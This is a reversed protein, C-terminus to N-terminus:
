QTNRRRYVTPRLGDSEEVIELLEGKVLKRLYGQISLDANGVFTYGAARMDRILEHQGFPQDFRNICEFAVRALENRPRPVATASTGIEKEEGHKGDISRSPYKARSAQVRQYADGRRGGGQKIREIMGDALLRKTAYVLATRPNKIEYGNERLREALERKTFPEDGMDGVMEFAARVTGGYPRTSVNPSHTEARISSAPNGVIEKILALMGPDALIPRMQTLNAITKKLAQDVAQAEGAHKMKTVM